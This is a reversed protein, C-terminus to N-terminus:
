LIAYANAPSAVGGPVNIPATTLLFTHRGEEACAPALRSLDWLEGLPLGLLALLRHHGWGVEPLYPLAEATPNDLAVAAIRNDWLWASMEKSPDLGPLRAAGRDADLRTALEVREGEELGMYWELWGTRFLLIDGPRPETGQAALVEGVLEAGIPLREQPDVPTGAAAGHGAVDVLVGRSILGREAWASISLAGGEEIDAEDRGGYFGFQRYRIHQFGDWQTSGQTYFSDIYDDRVNRKTVLHHRPAPRTAWFQPQPRGLPLNLNIVRGSRAERAAAAVVEPTIHNLCGFDDDPGFVEWAHHEESDGLTPLDAFLPLEAM